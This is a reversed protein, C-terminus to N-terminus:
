IEVSVSIEIKEESEIQYQFTLKSLEPDTEMYANILAMHTGCQDLVEFLLMFSRDVLEDRSSM